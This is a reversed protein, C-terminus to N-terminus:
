FFSLFFFYIPSWWLMTHLYLLSEILLELLCQAFGGFHPTLLGPAWRSQWLHSNNSPWCWGPQAWLRAQVSIASHSSNCPRIASWLGSSCALFDPLWTSGAPGPNCWGAREWNLRGNGLVLFQLGHVVQLRDAPLEATMRQDKKNAKMTFNVLVHVCVCPSMWTSPTIAKGASQGLIWFSRGNECIRSNVASSPDKVKM